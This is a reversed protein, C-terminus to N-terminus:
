NVGYHVKQYLLNMDNVMKEENHQREVKSRASRTIQAIKDPTAKAFAYVAETMADISYIPVIWGEKGSEILEEMGGCDTSIVPTGLAMAEVAVNAIGEELSPLLFLSANQIKDFVETQDLKPLFHIENKLGLEQILFLIEQDGEAGVIDYNFEIGKKKIEHLARIAISYGKKWHPRGISIIDLRSSKQVKSSYSVENLNLGTYVVQNIKGEKSFIQDGRDSMAKSVSHFGKFLPLWRSQYEFDKDDVFPRVNTQYGRQSLVFKYLDQRLLKEFISINSIWQVHIIDPNIHQLAAHLNLQKLKKKKGQILYSLSKLFTGSKVGWKLSTKAFRLKNLNDGLPIYNVGDVPDSNLENFGLVYVQHGAKSLGRLLRRIFATTKFSGDFIVIKLSEM